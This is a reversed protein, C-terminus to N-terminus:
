SVFRAVLGESDTRADLAVLLAYAGIFKRSIFMMEKPPLSFELSQMGQRATNMVRAYLNSGVWIYRQEDDLHPCNGAHATILKETNAFPECAMLFVEAMDSKPKGTLKDFFDYGTMATMMQSKDQHYGAAMLGKAISLLHQDFQKIAGFDLLILKDIGDEHRVLYNGFNPDTQMEGWEFLERVVIEIAAQGLANKRAQPLQALSPDNLSIGAEFSMCILRKSSYNDYITPVVYRADDALYSAFRKTTAAELQYDVERHLLKSIEDFWADLSKTQPVANTIKLLHKFISLDSDISEAVRPYQVKLVVPKGTHKHVAKHVQALSATGIPTREIDFDHVREGLEQKLAEYIIHWSLPTTSADLTHLANLVEKPLFHEGYLALMQGVKVVSGKLKGLEAALYDAQEQLLAQKQASRQDKDLLLSSMSSKAWNKGINLSTKAISLRRSLPSTKLKNLSDSM